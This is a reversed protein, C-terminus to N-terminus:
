ENNWIKFNSNSKLVVICKQHLKGCREEMFMVQLSGNRGTSRLMIKCLLLFHTKKWIFICQEEFRSVTCMFVTGCDCEEDGGVMGDGCVSGTGDKLCTIRTKTGLNAM